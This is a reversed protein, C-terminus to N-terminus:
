ALQLEDETGDAGFRRINLRKGLSRRAHQLSDFYNDAAISLSEPELAKGMAEEDWENNIRKALAFVVALRVRQMISNRTLSRVMLQM